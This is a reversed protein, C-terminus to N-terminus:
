GPGVEAITDDSNFLLKELYTDHYSCIRRRGKVSRKSHTYRKMIRLAMRRMMASNEASDGTRMRSDDERFSMDLTWHLSNEVSRHSRMAHAFRRTNRELSSIYYRVQSTRQEGTIRTSRVMANATAWASVMHIPMKSTASDRSRRLTKGDIAVVDGETQERVAHAWSFFCRQLAQPDLRVFLRRITDHSPIGNPLELLRKVWEGKFTGYDEIDEWTECGSVVACVTLVIIDILNHRRNPGVQPDVLETFHGMISASRPQKM